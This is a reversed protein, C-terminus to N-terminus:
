FNGTTLRAFLDNIEEQKQILSIDNTKLYGDYTKLSYVVTSHNKNFMDGIEQFTLRSHNKLYRYIFFRASVFRPKRCKSKLDKMSVSFTELVADIYEQKYTKMTMISSARITYCLTRLESERQTMTHNKTIKNDIYIINEEM